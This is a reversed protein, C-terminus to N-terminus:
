LSTNNYSNGIDHQSWVNWLSQLFIKIGREKSVEQVFRNIDAVRSIVSRVEEGDKDKFIEKDSTHLTDYRSLYKKM